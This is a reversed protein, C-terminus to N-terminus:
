MALGYSPMYARPFFVSGFLAASMLANNGGVHMSYLESWFLDDWTYTDYLLFPIYYPCAPSNCTQDLSGSSDFRMSNIFFYSGSFGDIPTGDIQLAHSTQDQWMTCLVELPPFALGNDLSSFKGSNDYEVITKLKPCGTSKSYDDKDMGTMAWINVPNGDGFNLEKPCMMMNLPGPGDDPFLSPDGSWYTYLCYEAPM